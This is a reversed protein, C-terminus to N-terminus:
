RRARNQAKWFVIALLITSSPMVLDWVILGGLLLNMEWGLAYGLMGGLGLLGNVVFLWKIIRELTGSTFVWASSLTALGMFGYGLVEIVWMISTPSKMDFTDIFAPQNSLTLQMYYNFGILVAYGIAFLLGLRSFLKKEVSSYEHICAMLIVFAPILLIGSVLSPIRLAISATIGSFILMITTAAATSFSIISMRAVAKVGSTGRREKRM